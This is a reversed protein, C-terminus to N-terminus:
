NTRSRVRTGVQPRSKLLGEAELRQVAETIPLMSMGLEEALRRRSLVAGLALQGRLIRERISLYAQETLSSRCTNTVSVLASEWFAMASEPMGIARPSTSFSDGWVGKVRLIEAAM